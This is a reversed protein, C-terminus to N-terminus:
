RLPESSAAAAVAAPGGFAFEDSGGGALRRELEAKRLAKRQQLQRSGVKFLALAAASVCVLIWMNGGLNGPSDDGGGAGGGGGSGGSGSGGEGGDDSRFPDEEM